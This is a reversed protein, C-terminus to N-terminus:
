PVTRGCACSEPPCIGRKGCPMSREHIAVEYLVEPPYPVGTKSSVAWLWVRDDEACGRVPTTGGCLRDGRSGDIWSLQAPAAEAGSVEVPPTDSEVWEGHTWAALQPMVRARIVDQAQAPLAADVWYRRSQAGPSKNM